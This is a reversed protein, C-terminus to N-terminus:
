SKTLLCFLPLSMFHLERERLKRLLGEGECPSPNRLLFTDALVRQTYQAPSSAHRCWSNSRVRFKAVLM